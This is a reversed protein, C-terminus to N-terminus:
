RSNRDMNNKSQDEQINNLKQKEDEPVSRKNTDPEVPQNEKPPVTPMYRGIIASLEDLIADEPHGQQIKYTVRRLREVIDADAMVMANQGHTDKRLAEAVSFKITGVRSRDLDKDVDIGVLTYPGFVVAASDNVGPQNAAVNALRKAKETNTLDEEEDIESNEVQLYENNNGQTGQDPKDNCANLLGAVLTTVVFGAVKKGM